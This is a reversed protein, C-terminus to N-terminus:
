QCAGTYAVDFGAEQARCSNTFTQYTKPDSACVNTGCSPNNQGNQLACMKWQLCQSSAQSKVGCVPGITENCSVSVLVTKQSSPGVKGNGPDNTCMLTYATTQAPSVVKSGNVNIAEETRTIDNQMVCRNANSTSWSLTSNPVGSKIVAQSAQFSITPTPLSVSTDAVTFTLYVTDAVATNTNDLPCSIGIQNAYNPLKQVSLTYVDAGSNPSVQIPIPAGSNSPGYFSGDLWCKGVGTSNWTLSVKQNDSVTIPGDSGNIKLNVNASSTPANILVTSTTQTRHGSNDYVYVTITYVGPKPYAYSHSYTTNPSGPTVAQNKSPTYSQLEDGWYIEYSLQENDPDSAVVTWTGQQNVALTTPGMFSQIVPSNGSIVSNNTILDPSFVNIKVTGLIQESGASRKSLRAIYTGPANYTHPVMYVPDPCSVRDPCADSISTGDGFDISFSGLPISGTFMVNLPAVGSPPGVAFSINGILKGAQIKLTGTALARKDPSYLTVDYVGDAFDQTVVTHSWTGNVVRITNNIVNRSDYYAAGDAVVSVSVSSVGYATGTITPMSSASTGSDVTGYVGTTPSADSVACKAAIAARTRPGVFGYGTTDPDGSSVVGHTRQWRQVARMTAPGFYGTVRAEPYISPDLALFRQLKSVEGNNDADTDDVQLNNTLSICSLTPTGTAGTGMQAKLAAIQALLAQVQAQLDSITDASAFVPSALMIIGVGSLMIKKIM